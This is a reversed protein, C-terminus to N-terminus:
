KLRNEMYKILNEFFSSGINLFDINEKFKSMCKHFCELSKEKGYIIVHNLSNNKRDKEYDDFDDLIQFALSFSESLLILNDVIENSEKIESYM